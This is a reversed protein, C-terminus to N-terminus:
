KMIGWVHEIVNMDAGKPPWDLTMVGLNELHKTVSRATHIPSLDQELLFHGDSYSGDLVHPLLQHDIITMYDESCLHGVIRYLPGDKTIAGWLNM